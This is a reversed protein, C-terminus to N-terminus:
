DSLNLQWSVGFRDTVWGFQKSFGYNNLPMLVEGQNSLKEYSAQLMELSDCEVFLSISPTFDFEHEVASDIVTFNQGLVRLSARKVSGEKGSGGASYTDLSLIETDTFAASYLSIAQNADGKFMLFPTISAMLPIREIPSIPSTLLCGALGM